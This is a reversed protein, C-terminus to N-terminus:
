HIEPDPTAAGGHLFDFDCGKDAQTIHQAFLAGYGRRTARRRSSGRRAAGRWSRM